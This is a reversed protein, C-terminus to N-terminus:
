FPKFNNDFGSPERSTEKHKKLRVLSPSNAQETDSDEQKRLYVPSYPAPSHQRKSLRKPSAVIENDIDSKARQLVVPLTPASMSKEVGVDHVDLLIHYFLDKAIRHAIRPQGPTSTDNPDLFYFYGDNDMDAGIIKVIHIEEGTEEEEVPVVDHVLYGEDDPSTFQLTPKVAFQRILSYDIEALFPSEYKRLEELFSELGKAPHWSSPTYHFQWIYHVVARDYYCALEGLSMEQLNSDQSKSALEEKVAEEINFGFQQSVKIAADVIQKDQRNLVFYTFDSAEQCELFAQLLTPVANSPFSYNKLLFAAFVKEKSVNGADDSIETQELQENFWDVIANEETKLKELGKCVKHYESIKKEVQREQGQFFPGYYKRKFAGFWCIKEASEARPTQHEPLRFIKGNKIYSLALSQGPVNRELDQIGATALTNQYLKGARIKLIVKTKENVYFPM